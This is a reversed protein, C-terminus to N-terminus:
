ASPRSSRRGPGGASASITAAIAAACPSRVGSNTSPRASSSKRSRKRASRKPRPASATRAIRGTRGTSRPTGGAVQARGGVDRHEVALAARAADGAGVALARAHDHGAGADVDVVDHALLVEVRQAEVAVRRAPPHRAHHGGRHDGMRALDLQHQAARAGVADARREQLRDDPDDVVAHAGGLRHARRAHVVLLADEVGLRPDRRRRQRRRAALHDGEM